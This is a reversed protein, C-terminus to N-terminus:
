KHGHVATGKKCVDMADPYPTMRYKEPAYVLSTVLKLKVLQLPMRTMFQASLSKGHIYSNITM